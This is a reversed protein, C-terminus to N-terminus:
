RLIMRRIINVFLLGVVLNQTCAYLGFLLVGVAPIGLPLPITKTKRQYLMPHTKANMPPGGM